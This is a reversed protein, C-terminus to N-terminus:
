QKKSGITILSAATAVLLVFAIGVRLLPGRLDSNGEWFIMDYLIWHSYSGWLLFYLATIGLIYSRYIM